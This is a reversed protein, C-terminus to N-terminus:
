QSMTQMKQRRSLGLGLLGIGLIALSGPEPVSIYSDFSTIQYAGTHTVSAYISMSYLGTMNIGGSSAGSFAIGPLLGSDSLMIEQGFATNTSDVYSQFSVTGNTTGGFATIYRAAPNDFDVDTATLRIYITGAAGSVNLSLLDLKESYADGIAPASVGSVSNITWSGLSGFLNVFGDGDSDTASLVIGLFNSSESMEILLANASAGFTILGITLTLKLFLKM